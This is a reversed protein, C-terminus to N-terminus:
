YPQRRSLKRGGRRICLVYTKRSEVGDGDGPLVIYRRQVIIQQRIYLLM